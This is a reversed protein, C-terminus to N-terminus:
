NTALMNGETRLTTQLHAFIYVIVDAHIGKNLTNASVAISNLLTFAQFIVLTPFLGLNRLLYATTITFDARIPRNQYLSSHRFREYM